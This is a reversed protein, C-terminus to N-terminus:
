PARWDNSAANRAAPAATQPTKPNPGGRSGSDAGHRVLTGAIVASGTVLLDRRSMRDM